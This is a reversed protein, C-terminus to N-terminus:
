KNEQALLDPAAVGLAAALASNRRWPDFAAFRSRFNDPNQSVYHSRVPLMPAGANLLWQPTQQQTAQISDRGAASLKAALQADDTAGLLDYPNASGAQLTDANRIALPYNTAGSEAQAYTSAEPLYNTAYAGPGEAGITSGRMKAIDPNPSGHAWGMEFDM